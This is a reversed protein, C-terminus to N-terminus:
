DNGVWFHEFAPMRVAGLPSPFLVSRVIVLLGPLLRRGQTLASPAAGLELRLRGKRKELTREPSM